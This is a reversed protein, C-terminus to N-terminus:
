NPGAGTQSAAKSIFTIGKIQIEAKDWGKEIALLRDDRGPHTKSAKINAIFHMALQAQELTAGMKCLVFGAFQDAELEIEPRSDTGIITHGNLHHGIEHALIFISAWRDKTAKNVQHVFEPNYLIYRQHHRINAEVNPVNAIKIKFNSELGVTEMIRAVIKEADDTSTFFPLDTSANNQSVAVTPNIVEKKNTVNQSWALALWLTFTVFLLPKKM